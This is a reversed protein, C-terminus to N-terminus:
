LQAEGTSGEWGQPGCSWPPVLSSAHRQKQPPVQHVGCGRVLKPWSTVDGLVTGSLYISTGIPCYIPEGLTTGATNNLCLSSDASCSLNGACELAICPGLCSPFM